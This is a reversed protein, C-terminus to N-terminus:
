QRGLRLKGRASPALAPGSATQAGYLDALARFAKGADSRKASSVIPEGRNVSRVIDRSSPVLLDPARGLVSLVDAHSIGVNTHARNLVIKIKESPVGMLALTELGLRTNKLSPADLMGVMCISTASDITAIVEPTFGPPTDVIV